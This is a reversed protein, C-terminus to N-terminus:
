PVAATARGAPGRACSRRLRFLNADQILPAREEVGSMDADSMSADENEAIDARSDSADMSMDELDGPMQQEPENACAALSLVLLLAALLTSEIRPM